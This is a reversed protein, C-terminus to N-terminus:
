AATWESGDGGYDGVFPYAVPSPDADLATLMADFHPQSVHRKDTQVAEIDPVKPVARLYNLEVATELAARLTRFEKRLTEPSLTDGNKMGPDALRKAAYETLMAFTVSDVYRPSMREGFLELVRKAEERSRESRMLKCHDRQYQEVFEAWPKNKIVIGA